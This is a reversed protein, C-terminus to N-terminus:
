SAQQRGAGPPNAGITDPEGGADAEAAIADAMARGIMVLLPGTPGAQQLRDAIDAITGAVV